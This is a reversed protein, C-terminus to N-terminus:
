ILECVLNRSGMVNYVQAVSGRHLIHFRKRSMVFASSRLM